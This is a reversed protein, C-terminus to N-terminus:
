ELTKTQIEKSGLLGSRNNFHFKFVVIVNVFRSSVFISIMKQCIINVCILVVFLQIFIAHISLKQLKPDKPFGHFSLDSNTSNNYCNFVCCYHVMRM